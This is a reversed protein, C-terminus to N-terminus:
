FFICFITKNYLSVRKGVDLNNISANSIIHQSFSTVEPKIEFIINIFPAFLCLSIFFGFALLARNNFTNKRVITTIYFSIKQIIKM